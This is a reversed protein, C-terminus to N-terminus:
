HSVTCVFVFIYFIELPDVVGLERVKYRVFDVEDGAIEEEGTFEHLVKEFKM